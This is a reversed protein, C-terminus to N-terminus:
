KQIYLTFTYYSEVTRVKIIPYSSQYVMQFTFYKRALEFFKRM